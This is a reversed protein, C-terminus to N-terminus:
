ATQGSSAPISDSQDERVVNGPNLAAANGCASAVNFDDLAGEVVVLGVLVEVCREFGHGASEAARDIRAAAAVQADDAAREVAVLGEVATGDVRHAVLPERRNDAVDGVLFDPVPAMPESGM